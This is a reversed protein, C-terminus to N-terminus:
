GWLGLQMAMQEQMRRINPFNPHNAVTEAEAPTLDVV